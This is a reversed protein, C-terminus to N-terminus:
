QRPVWQSRICFTIARQDGSPGQDRRQTMVILRQRAGGAVISVGLGM